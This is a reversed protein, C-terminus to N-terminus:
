SSCLGCCGCSVGACGGALGFWVGVLVLVPSVVVGVQRVGARVQWRSLLRRSSSTHERTRTHANQFLYVRVNM